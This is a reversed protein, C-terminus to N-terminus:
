PVHICYTFFFVSANITIVNFSRKAVMFFLFRTIIKLIHIETM